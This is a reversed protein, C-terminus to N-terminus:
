RPVILGLVWDDSGDPIIEYALLNVQLMLKSLFAAQHSPDHGAALFICATGYKCGVAFDHTSRGTGAKLEILTGDNLELDPVKGRLGRVITGLARVAEVKLWGEIGANVFRHLGRLSDAKQRIREAVPKLVDNEIDM